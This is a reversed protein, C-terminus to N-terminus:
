YFSAQLVDRQFFYQCKKAFAVHFCVPIPHHQKTQTCTINEQRGGKQRTLMMGWPPASAVVVSLAAGALSTKWTPALILACRPSPWCQNSLCCPVAGTIVNRGNSLIQLAPFCPLSELQVSSVGGTTLVEIPTEPRAPMTINDKRIEWKM